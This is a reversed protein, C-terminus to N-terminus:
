VAADADARARLTRGLGRAGSGDGADELADLLHAALALDDPWIKWLARLKDVREAPTRAAKMVKSLEGPDMSKLGLAAHLDRAEGPTRARGLIGQYLIAAAWTDKFLARWLAVRDKVKPLADLMMTLLRTRERWTPAECANLAKQYALALADTNWSY